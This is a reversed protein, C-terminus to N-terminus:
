RGCGLKKPFCFVRKKVLGAQIYIDMYGIRETTSTHKYLTSRLVVLSFVGISIEVVGRCFDTRFLGASAAHFTSVTFHLRNPSMAAREFPKEKSVSFRM